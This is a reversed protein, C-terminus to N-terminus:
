YISFKAVVRGDRVRLYSDDPGKIVASCAETSESQLARVEDATLPKGQAFTVSIPALLICLLAFRNV